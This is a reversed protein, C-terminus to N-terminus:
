HPALVHRLSVFPRGARRESWGVTIALLAFVQAPGLLRGIEFSYRLANPGLCITMLGYVAALGALPSGWGVWVAVAALVITITTLALMTLYAHPKEVFAVHMGAFPLGIAEARHITHALFPLAGFRWRVWVCWATYPVLAGALRGLERWDNRRFARWAWPILALAAIEKVLVAYALVFLARTRLGRGDLVYALLLLSIMLPDAVPDRYLTFVGAAVFVVAGAAGTVRSDELLTAALGPIAALAAVNVVILAWGVLQPRGLALLWGFLPFGVRGYRYTAEAHDPFWSGRGFLDQAILRYHFADAEGFFSGYGSRLVLVVIAVVLGTATGAFFLWASAPARRSTRAPSM